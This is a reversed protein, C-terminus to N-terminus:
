DYFDDSDDSDYDITSGGGHKVRECADYWGTAEGTRVMTRMRAEWSHHLRSWVRHSFSFLYQTLKMTAVVEQVSANSEGSIYQKCFLSDSRLPLGKSALEVLLEARRQAGYAPSEAYQRRRSELAEKEELCARTVTEANGVGDYIYALVVPNRMCLGSRFEVDFACRDVLTRRTEIAVEKARREDRERKWVLAKERIADLSGKGKDIYTKIENDDVIYDVGLSRLVALVQARREEKLLRNKERTAAAKRCRELNVELKTITTYKKTAARFLHEIKYLYKVRGYGLSITTHPVTKLTQTSIKLHEMASVRAVTGDGERACVMIPTLVDPFKEQQLPFFGFANGWNKWSVVERWARSVRSMNALDCASDFADHFLYSNIHSWEDNSLEVPVRICPRKNSM